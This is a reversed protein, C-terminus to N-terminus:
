QCRLRLQRPKEARVLPAARWRCVEEWASSTGILGTLMGVTKSCRGGRATILASCLLTEADLYSSGCDGFARPGDVFIKHPGESHLTMCKGEGEKDAKGAGRCTWSFGYERHSSVALRPRSPLCRECTAIRSTSQGTGLVLHQPQPQSADAMIWIQCIQPSINPSCPKIFPRRGGLTSRTSTRTDILTLHSDDSSPIPADNKRCM